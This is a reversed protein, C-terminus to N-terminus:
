ATQASSRRLMYILGALALVVGLLALGAYWRSQAHAIAETIGLLVAPILTMPAWRASRPNGRWLGPLPALLPALTILLTTTSLPGVCAWALLAVMLFLIGAFAPWASRAPM